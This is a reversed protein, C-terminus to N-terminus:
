WRMPMADTSSDATIRMRRRAAPLSCFVTTLGSVRSVPTPVASVPACCAAGCGVRVSAVLRPGASACDRVHAVVQM